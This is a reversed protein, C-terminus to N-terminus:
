WLGQQEGRLDHRADRALERNRELDERILEVAEVQWGRWGSGAYDWKAVKVADQPVPQEGATRHREIEHDVRAQRLQGMTVSYRRSKTAFHGGYGLQHAWPRLRLDQYAAEGGLRFAAAIMLRAHETVPLEELPTRLGTGHCKPCVGMLGSGACERCTLAYDVTGVCEAGKTAYKAIYGAVKTDGPPIAVFDLEDGFVLERVGASGDPTLIKVRAASARVAAELM